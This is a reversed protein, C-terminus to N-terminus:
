EGELTTAPSQGEGPANPALRLTQRVLTALVDDGVDPQSRVLAILGHILAIFTHRVHVIEIPHKAAYAPITTEELVDVLADVARDLFRLSLAADDIRPLPPGTHVKHDGRAPVYRRFLGICEMVAADIDGPTRRADWARVDAAFQDIYSDLVQTVLSDMDGVYHYILGRTVGVHTALDQVTTARVGQTAYLERAAALIEERRLTPTKVTRAM